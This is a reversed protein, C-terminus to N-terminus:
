LDEASVTGHTEAWKADLFAGTENTLIEMVKALTIIEGEATVDLGTVTTFRPLVKVLRGFHTQETSLKLYIGGDLRPRLSIFNDFRAVVETGDKTWAPTTASEPDIGVCIAPVMGVLPIHLSYKNGIKAM